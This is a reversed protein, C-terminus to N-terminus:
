WGRESYGSMVAKDFAEHEAPSAAQKYADGVVSCFEWWNPSFRVVLLVFAILGLGIAKSTRVYTATTEPIPPSAAM